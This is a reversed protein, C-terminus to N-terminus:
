LTVHFLPRALFVALTTLVFFVVPWHWAAGLIEIERDPYITTIAEFPSDPPLPQEGPARWEDWLSGDPRVPSRAVIADTVRFRKTTRGYGTPFQITLQFDGPADATIRWACEALSEAWVCPTDVRVGPAAELIMTDADRPQQPPLVNPKLRAIVVTSEGPRISRYGYYADLHPLLLALPPGAILLPIFTHTLYRAQQALLGGTARLMLRPDDQFLRLEFLSALIQRKTHAIARQNSTWKFAVLVAIAVLLSVLTLGVLPPWTSFPALVIALLRAILSNLAHLM